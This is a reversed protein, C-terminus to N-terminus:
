SLGLIWSVGDLDGTLKWVKEVNWRVILRDDKILGSQTLADGFARALKDTDGCDAATPYPWDEVSHGVWAPDIFFPGSVWVPVALRAWGDAWGVIKAGAGAPEAGGGGRAWRVVEGLGLGAEATDTMRIKMQGRGNRVPQPTLSGKTRPRGVVFGSYLRM